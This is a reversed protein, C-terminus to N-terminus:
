QEQSSTATQYLFGPPAETRPDQKHKERVRRKRGSKRRDSEPLWIKGPGAPVADADASLASPPTRRQCGFRPTRAHGSFARPPAVGFNGAKNGTLHTVIPYSSSSDPRRRQTAQGSILFLHSHLGSNHRRQQQGWM